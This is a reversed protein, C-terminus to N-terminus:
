AHQEWIEREFLHAQAFRATLAPFSGSFPQSRAVALANGADFALVAVLRLAGDEPVGFLSSLREGRELEAGVKQLFAPLPWEPVDAWRLASGNTLLAFPTTRNM